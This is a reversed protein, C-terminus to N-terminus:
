FLALRDNAGVQLTGVRMYMYVCTYTYIYMYICAYVYMYVYTHIFIYSSYIYAVYLPKEGRFNGLPRAQWLTGGYQQAVRGTQPVYLLM